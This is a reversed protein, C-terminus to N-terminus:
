SIEIDKAKLLEIEEFIKDINMENKFVRDGLHSNSACLNWMKYLQAFTYSRHRNNEKAKIAAEEPDDDAEESDEKEAGRNAM